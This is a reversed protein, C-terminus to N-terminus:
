LFLRLLVRSISKCSTWLLPSPDDRYTASAGAVDDQPLRHARGLALHDVELTSRRRRLESRGGSHVQRAAPPTPFIPMTVELPRGELRLALEKVDMFVDATWPNSDAAQSGGCSSFRVHLPGMLSCRFESVAIRIESKRRSM